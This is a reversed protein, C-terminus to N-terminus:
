TANAVARISLGRVDVCSGLECADELRVYARNRLAELAAARVIADFVPSLQVSTWFTEWNEITEVSLTTVIDSIM